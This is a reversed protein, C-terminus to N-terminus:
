REYSCTVSGTGTQEIVQRNDIFIRCTMPGRNRAINTDVAIISVRRKGRNFFRSIVSQRDFDVYTVTTFPMPVANKVELKENGDDDFAIYTVSPNRVTNSQLEYRVPRRDPQALVLLIVCGLIFGLVLVTGVIRKIADGIRKLM